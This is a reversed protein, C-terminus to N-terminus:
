RDHHRQRLLRAALVEKETWYAFSICGGVNVVRKTTITERSDHRISHTSNRERSVLCKNPARDSSKSLVALGFRVTILALLFTAFHQDFPTLFNAFLEIHNAWRVTIYNSCALMERVFLSIWKWNQSKIWKLARIIIIIIRNFSIKKNDERM